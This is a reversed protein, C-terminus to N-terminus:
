KGGENTRVRVSESYAGVGAGNYAAVQIEYRTWTILDTLTVSTQRTNDIVEEHPVSSAYGDLKYQVIYGRLAGNWSDEPPKKLLFSFVNTVKFCVFLWVVFVFWFLVVVCRIATQQCRERLVPGYYCDCFGNNNTDISYCSM